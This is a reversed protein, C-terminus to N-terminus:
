NRRGAADLDEQHKEVAEKVEEFNKNELVEDALKEEEGAMKNVNDIVNQLKQEIKMKRLMELNRDLQKQLDEYSLDMQESLQNLKKSDFEDALKQFEEMLEKLEDTFVDELLEEIQKQKEKIEENNQNFSNLYNNLNENDKKIQDYLQELKNQKTVIDNVMQSKEWDSVNTDMNKIRLNQLDNQIDKALKDSQKLMEQLKEFQEKESAAIEERNPIEFVFNDSTTTKYNNIVDNDTVSFYYSVM